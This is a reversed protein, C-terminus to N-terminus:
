STDVSLSYEAASCLFDLNAIEDSLDYLCIIDNRVTELVRAIIRASYIIALIVFTTSILYCFSKRWLNEFEKM